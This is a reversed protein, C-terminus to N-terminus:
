SVIFDYINEVTALDLDQLDRGLKNGVFLLDTWSVLCVHKRTQEDQRDAYAPKEPLDNVDLITWGNCFHFANWRLHEGHALNQKQVTTLNNLFVTRNELSKVNQETIGVLRLKCYLHEACSINSLQKFLSLEDFRITTNFQYNYVDHIKRGRREQEGQVIINDTYVESDRGFIFIRDLSQEPLNYYHINNRIQVLIKFKRDSKTRVMNQIDIATLMNLKDDGLAVVIYNLKNIREKLVNYFVSHGVEAQIFDLNYNSTVEPYLYEFRGKLTNMSRDVVTAHFDSGVFQGQEILKRLVQCGIQGFGIIMANFDSTAVAKDIDINISDVPHHAYILQRAIILATYHLKVCIGSSCMRTRECYQEFTGETQIGIHIQILRSKNLGKLECIVRDAMTINWDENETLFYLHTKAEIIKNKLVDLHCFFVEDDTTGLHNEMSNKVQVIGEDKELHICEWVSQRKIVYAGAETISPFLSYDDEVCVDKVFVILGNKKKLLDNSLSFSARNMGFFFHNVNPAMRKIKSRVFFEKCFVHLIFSTFIFVASAGILSFFAHFISSQKIGEDIEVLDNGLIFLRGTSFIAELLSPLFERSYMYYGYFYVSMGGALTFPLMVQRIFCIFGNRKWKFFLYYVLVLVIVPILLVLNLIVIERM